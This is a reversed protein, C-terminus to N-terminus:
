APLAPWSQQPRQSGALPQAASSCVKAILRMKDLAQIKPCGDIRLDTLVPLRLLASVSEHTLSTAGCLSLQFPKAAAPLSTTLLQALWVSPHASACLRSQVVLAATFTICLWCGTHPEASLGQMWSSAHQDAACIHWRARWRHGNKVPAEGCDALSATMISRDGEVAQHKCPLWVHLGLLATCVPLAAGQLPTWRQCVSDVLARVGRDDLHSPSDRSVSAKRFAQSELRLERHWCCATDRGSTCHRALPLDKKGCRGTHCHRICSSCHLQHRETQVLSLMELWTPDPRRLCRLEM